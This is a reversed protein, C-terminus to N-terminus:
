YGSSPASAADDAASKQRLIIDVSSNTEMTKTEMETDEKRVPIPRFFMEFHKSSWYGADNENKLNESTCPIFPATTNWEM